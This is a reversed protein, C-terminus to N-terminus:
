SGVVQVGPGWPEGEEPVLGLSSDSILTQGDAGRSVHARPPMALVVEVTGDPSAIKLTENGYAFVTSSLCALGVVVHRM